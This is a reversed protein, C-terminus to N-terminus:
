LMGHIRGGGFTPPLDYEYLGIWRGASEKQLVYMCLQRLGAVFRGGWFSRQGKLGGKFLDRVTFVRLVGASGVGLFFEWAM